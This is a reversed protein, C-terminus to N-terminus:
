EFVLAHRDDFMRYCPRLIAPRATGTVEPREQADIISASSDLMMAEVTCANKTHEEWYERMM